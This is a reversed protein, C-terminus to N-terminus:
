CLPRLQVYLKASARGKPVVAGVAGWWCVLMAQALAKAAGCASCLTACCCGCTCRRLMYLMEGNYFSQFQNRTCEDVGNFSRGCPSRARNKALNQCEGFAINGCQKLSVKSQFKAAFTRQGGKCFLQPVVFPRM